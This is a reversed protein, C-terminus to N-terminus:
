QVKVTRGARVVRQWVCAHEFKLAEVEFFMAKERECVKTGVDPVTEGLVNPM